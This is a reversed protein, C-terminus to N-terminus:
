LWVSGYSLDICCCGPSCFSTSRASPQFSHTTCIVYKKCTLHASIQGWSSPSDENPLQSLNIWELKYFFFLSSRYITRKSKHDFHNIQLESTVVLNWFRIPLWQYLLIIVSSRMLSLAILSFVCFFHFTIQLIWWSSFMTFSGWSIILSKMWRTWKSEHLAAFLCCKAPVVDHLAWREQEMRMKMTEEESVQTEELRWKSSGKRDM